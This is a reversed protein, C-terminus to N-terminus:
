WKKTAFMAIKQSMSVKPMALASTARTKKTHILTKLRKATDTNQDNM